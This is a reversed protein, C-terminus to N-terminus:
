DDVYPDLRNHPETVNWNQYHIPQDRRYVVAMNSDRYHFYARDLLSVLDKDRFLEAM